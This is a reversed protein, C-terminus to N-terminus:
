VRPPTPLKVIFRTGRRGSSQVRISGQFDTEIYRKIAFLGIGLGLGTNSKTSYFPQFLQALQDTTIGCGQDCVEIVLYNQRIHLDLRVLKSDSACSSSGYSDIANNVLNAIIQQFKVPDGYLKYGAATMFQLKVGRRKALPALVRKVQELESQVFFNRYQSERRVQQHAAEVYRQILRISRRVHRIHPSQQNGYQELWLMAATLPNSIEHLLAASLRGIEAFHELELLREPNIEDPLALSIAPSSSSAQGEM